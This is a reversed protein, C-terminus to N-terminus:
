RRWAACWSRVARGSAACTSAACGNDQIGAPPLALLEPLYFREPFYYPSQRDLVNAPM